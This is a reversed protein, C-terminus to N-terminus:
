QYILGAQVNHFLHEMNELLGSLLNKYIVGSEVIEFDPYYVVLEINKRKFAQSYFPDFNDMFIANSRDM